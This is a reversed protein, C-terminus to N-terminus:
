IHILSLQWQTMGISEMVSLETRRNQINVVFTNMYNMTGIFALILVIGMGIQPMNGQAKRMEDAEELKSEWSFNRTNADKKLIALIEEETRRDYEKKYRIGTKLIFAKADFAKVVQDSVILTPPYGLLATYYSDDTVGSVTFSKSKKLNRYLTCTVTKGILDKDALEVGNRYVICVKGALFDNKSVPMDLTQNLHDFEDEDIGLMSVVEKPTHIRNITDWETNTKRFDQFLVVKGNSKYLLPIPKQWTQYCHPVSKAYTAVQESVKDSDVDVEERKAELVGCVKGNIFMLYDAELNGKLLGERVAVASMTPEFEDRNVVQWGAEEFWRDIKVRAKEEPTM